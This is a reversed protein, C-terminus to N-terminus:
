IQADNKKLLKLGAKIAEMRDAFRMSLPVRDIVGLGDLTQM